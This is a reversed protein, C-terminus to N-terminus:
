QTSIIETKIYSSKILKNGLIMKIKWRYFAESRHAM